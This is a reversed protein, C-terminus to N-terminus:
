SSIFIKNIKGTLRLFKAFAIKDVIRSFIPKNKKYRAITKKYFRVLTHTITSIKFNVEAIERSKEGFEKALKEDKLILDIKAVFDKEKLPLAFGNEGNVIMGKFAEDDVVVLPLNSSAAELVCMGQTETDSAFVFIDSDAYVRPMNATPISGVFHVNNAIKLEFALKELNEQEFGQGVLVLHAKPNIKKYKQLVKILFDFNKEKGLRGVSLIIQDDKALGLKERLFGKEVNLFRSHDIFNPVVEINKKVGYKILEKKMKLSPTIVGDCLNGFVRMGGQVMNPKVLKGNFFYHTYKSHITHFTLIYPVGKLRAIQYGLFSFAGNGHAHVLDFDLRFIAALSKSPTPLPARAEPESNLVKFSRLRFVNPNTDKYGAIKPAFIYVEHGQKTLEKTFNEISVTVGNLQPYYTDTFFAIKM